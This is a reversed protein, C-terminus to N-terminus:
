LERHPAISPEAAPGALAQWSGAEHHSPRFMDESDQVVKQAAAVVGRAHSDYRGAHADLAEARLSAAGSQRRQDLLAPAIWRVRRPAMVLAPGILAVGIAKGLEEGSICRGNNVDALQAGLLADRQEEFGRFSEGGEGSAGDHHAEPRLALLQLLSGAALHQKGSWEFM